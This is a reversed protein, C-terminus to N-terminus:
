LRVVSAPGEVGSPIVVVSSAIVRAPALCLGFSPYVGTSYSEHSLCRDYSLPNNLKGLIWFFSGFVFDIM